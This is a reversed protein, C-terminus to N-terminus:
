AFSIGADGLEPATRIHMPVGFMMWEAGRPLDIPLRQHFEIKRIAKPSGTPQCVGEDRKWAKPYQLWFEGLKSSESKSGPPPRAVSFNRFVATKGGYFTIFEFPFTGLRILRIVEIRYVDISRQSKRNPRPEVSRFKLAWEHIWGKGMGDMYIGVHITSKEPLHLSIHWDWPTLFGATKTLMLM